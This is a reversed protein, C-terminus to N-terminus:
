NGRLWDMDPAEHRSKDEKPMDKKWNSFLINFRAHIKNFELPSDELILKNFFFELFEEHNIKGLKMKMQEFKQFHENNLYNLYINGNDIVDVNVYTNPLEEKLTLYSKLKENDIGLDNLIKLASDQQKVKSKPFNPYQFKIFKPLWYLNKDKNLTVLSNGFEEMLTDISKLGTQFECLKRNLRLVGAHDCTTIYYVFFLKADKSLECVWEDNFMNTDIFRKSM